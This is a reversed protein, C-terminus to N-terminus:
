LSKYVTEKRSLRKKNGICFFRGFDVMKELTEPETPTSNSKHFDIAEKMGRNFAFAASSLVISLMPFSFCDDLMGYGSLGEV